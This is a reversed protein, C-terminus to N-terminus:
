PLFTGENPGPTKRNVGKRGFCKWWWGERDCREVLIEMHGMTSLMQKACVASSIPIRNVSLIADGKRFPSFIHSRCVVVHTGRGERERNCMRIGLKEKKRPPLVITQAAGEGVGKEILFPNPSIGMVVARCTPCRADYRTMHSFCSSCMSHSCTSFGVFPAAEDGRFCVCCPTM